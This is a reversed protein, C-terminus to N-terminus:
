RASRDHRQQPRGTSRRVSRAPIPTARSSMSRPWQAVFTTGPAPRPSGAHAGSRSRRFPTEPAPRVAGTGRTKAACAGSKPEGSRTCRRRTRHRHRRALGPRRVHHQAPAGDADHRGVVRARGLQGEGASRSRRRRGRDIPGLHPSRGRRSPGAHARREIRPMATATCAGHAEDEQKRRAKSSEPQRARVATSM